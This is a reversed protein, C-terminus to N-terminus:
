FFFLVVYLALADLSADLFLERFQCALLQRTALALAALPAFGCATIFRPSVDDDCKEDCQDDETQRRKIECPAAPVKAFKQSTRKEDARSNLKVEVKGFHRHRQQASIKDQRGLDASHAGDGV